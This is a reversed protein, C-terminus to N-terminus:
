GMGVNSETAVKSTHLNKESAVRESNCWLGVGVTLHSVQLVGRLLPMLLMVFLTLLVLHGLNLLPSLLMLQPLFVLRRVHLLPMLLMMFQTLLVLHRMKRLPGMVMLVADQGKQYALSLLVLRTLKGGRWLARPM